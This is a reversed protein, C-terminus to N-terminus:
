HKGAAEGVSIRDVRFTGDIIAEGIRVGTGSSVVVTGLDAELAKLRGIDLGVAEIPSAKVSAVLAEALGRVEAQSTPPQRDIVEAMVAQRVKSSPMQELAAVDHAAWQALRSKLSDYAEKAPQGVLGKGASEASLSLATATLTGITVQDTM